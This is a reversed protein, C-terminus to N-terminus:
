RVSDAIVSMSAISSPYRPARTPAGSDRHVYVIGAVFGIVGGVVIMRRSLRPYKAWGALFLAGVVGVAASETATTIGFLIVALV